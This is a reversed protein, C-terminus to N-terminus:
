ASIEVTFIAQTNWYRSVSSYARIITKIERYAPTAASSLLIRPFNPWVREAATWYLHSIFPHHFAFVLGHEHKTATHLSRCQGTRHAPKDHLLTGEMHTLQMKFLLEIRCSQWVHSRRKLCGWREMLAGGVALLRIDHQVARSYRIGCAVGSFYANINVRLM